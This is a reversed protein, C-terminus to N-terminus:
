AGFFELRAELDEGTVETGYDSISELDPYNLDWDAPDSNERFEKAIDSTVTWASVVIDGALIALTDYGNNTIWAFRLTTTM